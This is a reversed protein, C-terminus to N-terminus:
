DAEQRRAGQAPSIGARLSDDALLESLLAHVPGAALVWRNECSELIKRIRLPPSAPDVPVHICGARLIGIMSVIAAPSKHMLFCVRDGKRCGGEKLLRALQNSKKELQGYTLRESGFVVAVAQPRREAQRTVWDQLLGTM